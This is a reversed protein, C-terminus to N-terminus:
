RGLKMTYMLTNPCVKKTKPPNYTLEETKSSNNRRRVAKRVQVRRKWTVLQKCIILKLWPHLMIKTFIVTLAIKYVTAFEIRTINMIYIGFLLCVCEFM